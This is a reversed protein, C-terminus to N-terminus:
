RYQDIIEKIRYPHPINAVEIEIDGRRNPEAEDGMPEGGQGASDIGIYGVGFIRHMLSQRITVNVVHRHLVESTKRMVIGEQRISRKNTVTLKVWRHPAAWWGIWWILGIAMAALGFWMTWPHFQPWTSHQSSQWGMFAIFIGGLFIFLMLSYWLPHARFM